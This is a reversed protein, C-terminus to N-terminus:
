KSKDLSFVSLDSFLVNTGGDSFTGVVLGIQGTSLDSDYEEAVLKGNVTLTLRDQDCEVFIQNIAEGKNIAINAKMKKQGILVLDGGGVRKGIGYYGDSSIMFIYFSASGTTGQVRCMLGFFNDDVGGQKETVVDISINNFLRGPLVWGAANPQPHILRYGEEDYYSVLAPDGNSYWGSDANSFDDFFLLGDENIEQQQEGQLELIQAEIIASDHVAPVLNSYIQLDLVALEFNGMEIHTGARNRYALAFNPSFEIATSFNIIAGEFDEINVLVLARTHYAQSFNPNIEIAREFDKIAAEIDDLEFYINGRMLYAQENEPNIEIESQVAKLAEHFLGLASAERAISMYDPPIPTPSPPSAQTQFSTPSAVVLLEPRAIDNEELLLTNANCAALLLLAFLLFFNVQIKNFIFKSM